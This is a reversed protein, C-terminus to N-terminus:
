NQKEVLEALGNNLKDILRRFEEKEEVDFFGFCEADIREIIGSAEKAMEEGKPTIFVHVARLDKEDSERVLLGRKELKRLIDTMSAPRINIIKCLKNQSLGCNQSLLLLIRIQGPYLEMSSTLYTIRKLLLLELKHLKFFLHNLNTKM